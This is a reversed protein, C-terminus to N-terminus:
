GTCREVPDVGVLRSPDSAPLDPVPQAAVPVLGARTRAMVEDM